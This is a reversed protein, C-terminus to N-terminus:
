GASDCPRGSPASTADRSPSASGTRGQHATWSMSGVAEDQRRSTRLGDAGPTFLGFSGPEDPSGWGRDGHSGGARRAESVDFTEAIPHGPAVTWVLGHFARHLPRRGAVRRRHTSHPEAPEGSPWRRGDPVLIMRGSVVETVCSGAVSVQTVCSLPNEDGRGTM